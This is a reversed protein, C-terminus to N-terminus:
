KERSATRPNAGNETGIIKQVFNMEPLKGQALHGFGCGVVEPIVSMLCNNGGPTEFAQYTNPVCKNTTEFSIM